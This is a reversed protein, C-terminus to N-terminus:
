SRLLGQVVQSLERRGEEPMVALAEESSALYALAFLPLHLARSVRGLVSLSPERQGTELLSLYSQEVEAIKAVQQQTMRRAERVVRIADGYNLRM